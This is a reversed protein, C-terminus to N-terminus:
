GFVPHADNPSGVRSAIDTPDPIVYLSVSGDEFTGALIGIKRLPSAPDFPKQFVYPTTTLVVDTHVIINCDRVSLHDHAPLPCWKLEFASGAEVCVAMECHM